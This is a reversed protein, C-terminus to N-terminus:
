RAVNAALDLTPGILHLRARRRRATIEAPSRAPRRYQLHHGADRLERVWPGVSGVKLDLAEAIEAESRGERWLRMLVVDQEAKAPRRDGPAYEPPPLPRVYWDAIGAFLEAFDIGLAGALRVAAVIRFNRNGCEFDVVDGRCM